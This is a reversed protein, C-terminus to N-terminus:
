FEEFKNKIEGATNTRNFKTIKFPNKGNEQLEELKERRVQMLHNIDLEQEENQNNKIESM